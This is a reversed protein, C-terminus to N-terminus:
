SGDTRPSTEHENDCRRGEENSAHEVDEIKCESNARSASAIQSEEITVNANGDGQFCCNEISARILFYLIYCAYCAFLMKSTFVSLKQMYVDLQSRTM